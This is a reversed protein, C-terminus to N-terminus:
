PLPPACCWGGVGPFAARGSGGPDFQRGVNSVARIQGVRDSRIFLWQDADPWAVLLWAGDPSFVLDSFRGTGSFLQRPRPSGSALRISVVDSRNLLPRHRVIALRQGSPQAAARQATAGRPMPIRTVPQGDANFVQVADRSVAILLRGDSSWLLQHPSDATRARWLTARRDTQAVVVRGERDAYALVHEAGPRWVPTVGAARSALLDDGTSDGAVVRVAGGSLYAIRFGDPSWAPASVVNSRTLTWRVEGDPELAVLQTGRTVAVFLGGPSWGADEYGGLRRKSGDRQVIWPGNAATVLLRGEAPLSTLAVASPARAPRVADSIWEGVAEGPPTFAAAVVGLALAAIVARRGGPRPLRGQPPAKSRHEFAANVVRWARDEVAEQDPIPARRLSERLEADTM